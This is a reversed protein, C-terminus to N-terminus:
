PLSKGVLMGALQDLDLVTPVRPDNANLTVERIKLNAAARRALELRGGTSAYAENTLREKLSDARYLALNGEATLRDFEAQAEARRRDNTAQADARVRSIALKGNSRITEISKDLEGRIRGESGAIDQELTNRRLEEEVQASAQALLALQRTLQKQQLVKEYQAWFVVDHIQISEARLHFRALLTNLRPLASSMRALRADTSTYEDATLEALEKMLVDQITARALEDYTSKLGDRVLLHAEGPVIRYPVLASIKIENGQKTRLDLIPSDAGQEPTGFFAFHTRRDILHWAHWGRVSFHLGPEYDRPAIGQGGWQTQRVGISASPVRQFLLFFAGIVLVAVAAASGGVRLTGRLMRWAIRSTGVVFRSRALRVSSNWARATAGGLARAGRVIASRVSRAVIAASTWLSEGPAREAESL